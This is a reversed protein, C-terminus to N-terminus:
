MIGVALAANVFEVSGDNREPDFQFPVLVPNVRAIKPLMSLKPVLVSATWLTTIVTYQASM